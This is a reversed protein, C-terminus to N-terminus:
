TLKVARTTQYTKGIDEFQWIVHIRRVERAYGNKLILRKLYPALAAIGLGSAFLLITNYGEVSM